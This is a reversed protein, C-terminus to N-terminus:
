TTPYPQWFTRIWEDVDKLCVFYSYNHRKADPRHGRTLPKRYAKLEGTRIAALLVSPSIGLYDKAVKSYPIWLKPIIEDSPCVEESAAVGDTPIANPKPEAMCERNREIIKQAILLARAMIDSESDNATSAIEANNFIQPVIENSM